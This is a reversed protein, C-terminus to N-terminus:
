PARRAEDCQRLRHLWFVVLAVDVLLVAVSVSPDLGRGVAWAILTASQGVGASALVLMALYLTRV